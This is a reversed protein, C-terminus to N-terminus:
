GEGLVIRIEHDGSAILADDGVPVLLDFIEGEVFLRVRRAFDVGPTAEILAAIQSVYIKRGFDWGGGDSGGTLPHLYATLRQLVLEEIQAADEAHLPTVEAAVSVPVYAPGTVHVKGTLPVPVRENLYGEVRRRMEATLRPQMEMSRPVVVLTVAGREDRGVSGTTPLCRARAVAPSAERALWVFDESTVARDRHRIRQPGRELLSAVTEGATGGDAGAPNTVGTVFPVAAHLQLDAEAPINGELGGGTSYSVAIRSGAPPVLGRAGDGFRLWGGAREIVYHRDRVNSGFFNERPSWRVWVATVSGTAADRVTRLDDESIGEVANEWDSGTGHWERVEVKEGQLVPQRQVFHTQDPNGDSTGLIEDAVVDRHKAWVANLWVGSVPLAGARGGSKMRARIQYLAGGPGQVPTADATGVFQIMGSGLFGRTEDLVGLQLWRGESHVEWTFTAAESTHSSGEADDPVHLYLSMLGQPLARDFCFHVAPQSGAPPRIPIFSRRHWRADHSHDAFGFDNYCLCHDLATKTTEYTYRVRLTAVSPPQLTAPEETVVNGEVSYKVAHGYPDETGELRVRMWFNEVGNVTVPRWDVPAVFTIDFARSPQTTFGNTGDDVSLSKWTTGDNYEWILVREEDALGAGAMKVRLDIRAGKRKFAEESAVYFTTFRRPYPGFPFFTNETDTKLVDTFAAEVHLGGRSFSVGARIVDVAPMDQERDTASFPTALRGRIWYSRQEDITEEAADPGGSKALWLEGDNVLGNTEDEEVILPLWGDESLYEWALDLATRPEDGTFGLMFALVLRAEASLAFLEDHGLYLAHEIPVMGDFFAFGEVRDETHDAFMDSAPDLSYVAALRGRTMTVTRTTAFMVPNAAATDADPEQLVSPSAPPYPAAVRSNAPLTTDAPADDQLTFVLPIRAAQPAMLSLGISDLFALFHLDPVQNIGQLFLEAYRALVRLLAEGATAEGPQWGPTYGDIRNLLDTWIEEAGRSDVVPSPVSM